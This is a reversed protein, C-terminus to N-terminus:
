FIQASMVYSFFLCHCTTNTVRKYPWAITMDKADAMEEVGPYPRPLKADRKMVCRIVVLCHKKGLAQGAHVTVPNVSIITGKAVPEDRQLAYLIIENGIQLL